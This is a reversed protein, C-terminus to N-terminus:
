CLVPTRVCYCSSPVFGLVGTPGQMLKGGNQPRRCTQRFGYILLPELPLTAKEPLPLVAYNSLFCSGPTGVFLSIPARPARHSQGCPTLYRCIGAFDASSPTKPVQLLQEADQKMGPQRPVAALAVTGDVQQTATMSFPNVETLIQTM